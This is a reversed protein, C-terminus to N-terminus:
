SIHCHAILKISYFVIQLGNETPIQLRSIRVCTIAMLLIMYGRINNDFGPYAMVMCIPHMIHCDTLLKIGYPVFELLNLIPM